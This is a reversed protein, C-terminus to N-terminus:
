LQDFFYKAIEQKTEIAALDVQEQALESEYLDLDITERIGQELSEALAEPTLAELEYADTIGHKEVFALYTPSTVKAEMSPQLDHEAIQPFTLAVKYAEVSDVGFDRRFSKVLDDAIAEGAPDLDTVVLLVLKDKGSANYRELIAKKPALVGMGRMTTIPMTYREAVPRLISQVTLKESVIEIHHPQSQLLNRWYGKLFGDYEQRCFKDMSRFAGNLAVPRTEDDIAEWPILGDVRGRACLDILAKYSEPNNGYASDLKSAHKLPAYELLRYHIQRVSIPFYDRQEDLVRLVASLFPEKARSISCRSGDDTPLIPIM